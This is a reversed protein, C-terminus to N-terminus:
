DCTHPAHRLRLVSHFFHAFGRQARSGARLILCFFLVERQPEQLYPSSLELPLPPFCSPIGEVEMKDGVYMGFRAGLVLCCCDSASPLLPANLFVGSQLCLFVLRGLDLPHVASSFYGEQMRPVSQSSVIATQNRLLPLLMSLSGVKPASACAQQIRLGSFSFQSIHRVSWTKYYTRSLLLGGHPFHLAWPARFKILAVVLGLGLEIISQKLKMRHNIVEYFFPFVRNM